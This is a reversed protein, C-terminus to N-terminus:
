AFADRRVDVPVRKCGFTRLWGHVEDAQAHERVYVAKLFNLSVKNPYLVEAQRCTPWAQKTGESRRVIMGDWQTVHQAYLSRLGDAGPAREVGTYMNNTTAFLVGSHALIDPTFALVCWYLDDEGRSWKNASIDFFSANIREISLNVYNLQDVDKRLKANPRYVHEIYQNRPLHERALVNGLRAIGLMGSNRTFHVVESINLEDVLATVDDLVKTSM